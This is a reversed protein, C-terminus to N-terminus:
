FEFNFYQNMMADNKPHVPPMLLSIQTKYQFYKLIYFLSRALISSLLKTNLSTLKNFFITYLM